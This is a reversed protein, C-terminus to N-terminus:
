VTNTDDITVDDATVTLVDVTQNMEDVFEVEYNIPSGPYIILVTGRCGTRVKDNLDHLAKIINYEQIM